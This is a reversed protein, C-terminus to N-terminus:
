QPKNLISIFILNGFVFSEVQVFVRIFTIITEKLTGNDSFYYMFAFFLSIGSGILITLIMAKKTSYLTKPVIVKYQFTFVIVTWVFMVVYELLFVIGPTSLDDIPESPFYKEFLGDCLLFTLYGIIPPLITRIIKNFTM